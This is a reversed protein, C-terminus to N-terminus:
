DSNSRRSIDDYIQNFKDDNLCTYLDGYKDGYLPLKEIDVIGEAYLKNKYRKLVNNGMSSEMDWNLTVINPIVGYCKINNHRCFWSYFWDDDRFKPYKSYEAKIQEMIPLPMIIAPGPLFHLRYIGHQLDPAHTERKYTYLALPNSPFRNVLLQVYEYICPNVILDDQLVLRHTVGEEMPLSFAKQSTKLPKGSMETDIAVDSISLGLQLCLKAVNQMRSPVAMFKIDCKYKM